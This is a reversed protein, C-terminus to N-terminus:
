YKNVVSIVQQIEVDTLTPELPLSVVQEHIKESIPFSQGHFLKQYGKQHHPAIPYHILSGVGNEKLFNMFHERKEVQVTYLHWVHQQATEIKPKLVKTNKIQRDYTNAIQIRIKNEVDLNRLRHRLFAAQIEDLRSNLGIYQNEYKKHSGYNRLAKLIEYYKEDNTTIAGADGLAGLNKGPYFSFGSAVGWSGAFKQHLRAGHAQASDEFLLLKYDIAIKQIEDMACIRGYLHVVMIAKTKATIKKLIEKPDINFTEPDPEVLVAKLGALQIALITAIYTNAPVIVEDQLKLQGLEIAAKLILILADLGNAVGVCYKVHNYAAFEKEFESVEKGLIYHGSNLFNTFTEKFLSEYQQNIRKLNLFEVM